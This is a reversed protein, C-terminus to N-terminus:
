LERISSIQSILSFTPSHPPHFHLGLVMRCQFGTAASEYRGAVSAPLSWLTTQVQIYKIALVHKHKDSVEWGGVERSWYLQGGVHQLRSSYSQDPCHYHDCGSSSNIEEEGFVSRTNIMLETDHKYTKM